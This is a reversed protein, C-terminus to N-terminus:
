NQGTKEKEGNTGACFNLTSLKTVINEYKYLEIKELNPVKCFVPVPHFLILVGCIKNM